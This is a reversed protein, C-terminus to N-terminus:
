GWSTVNSSNPVGPQVPATPQGGQSTAIVDAMTCRVVNIVPTEFKKM